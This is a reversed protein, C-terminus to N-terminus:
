GEDQISLEKRIKEVWHEMENPEIQTNASFDEAEAIPILHVHVHAIQLGEVKIGIKPKGSAKKLARAVIHVEKWLEIYLGEPLDFIYAIEQKPIVLTHGPQNPFVDLISIFKDTERV